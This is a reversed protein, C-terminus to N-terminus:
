MAIANFVGEIEKKAGVIEVSTSNYSVPLFIM